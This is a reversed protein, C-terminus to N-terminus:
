SRFYDKLVTDEVPFPSPLHKGYEGDSKMVSKIEAVKKLYEEKPYKQNLIEYEAHNRTVCGFCDHSNFVYECYELNSGYWCVNCFNSYSLSVGSMTEYCMETGKFCYACDVNNKLGMVPRECYLCDEVDRGDFCYFCGRTNELYDGVSDECQIQRSFLRPHKSKLNEFESLFLLKKSPDKLDQRIEKMKEEYNNQSYPENFIHYTKRRLGVCGFCDTCGICDFLYSSDTCDRCDQLFNGNYCNLCDVCEYCLECSRIFHGDVCDRSDFAYTGYYVNECRGTGFVLYCNRISDSYSAYPSNEALMNLLAPHPNKERLHQLENLFSM